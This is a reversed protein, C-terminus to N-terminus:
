QRDWVTANNVTQGQANRGTQTATLMKGDRSIAVRTTTTVKGNERGVVDFSHDDIRKFAVTQAATPSPQVARPTVEKGDFRRLTESHTAQGQANVGDFTDKEAGGAAAEVKLTNSKPPPGPSYTSKALNLKWTGVFPSNQAQASPSVMTLVLGVLVGFAVRGGLVPVEARRM